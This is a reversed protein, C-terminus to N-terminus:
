NYGARYSQPPLVADRSFSDIVHTSVCTVGEAYIVYSSINVYFVGLLDFYNSGEYFNIKVFYYCSLTQSILKM